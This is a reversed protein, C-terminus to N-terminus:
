ISKLAIFIGYSFLTKDMCHIKNVIDILVHQTSRKERFGYQNEYPVDHSDLFSKLRKHMMKELIRNFISLLSIPRYNSPDAEDDSKYM